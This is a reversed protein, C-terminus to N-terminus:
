KNSSNIRYNRAENLISNEIQSALENDTHTDTWLGNELKQVHVKVSVGDSRLESTKIYAMIKIRKNKINKNVYWDTIITGGFADTSILPAISLVDLSARWLYGNVNVSIGDEDQPNLIDTLSVGKSSDKSFLGPTKKEGTIPNTVLANNNSCSQMVILIFTLLITKIM